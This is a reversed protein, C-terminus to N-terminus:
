KFDEATHKKTKKKRIVNPNGGERAVAASAESGEAKVPSVTSKKAEAKAVRARMARYEKADKGFTTRMWYWLPGTLFVSSCAGAVIGVMMPLTFEKISSVGLVYLMLISAFTTLNTFISRTLTQNIAGDVLVELDGNKPMEPLKERIRDFIVITSNISYGLITLMVAIFSNGASIRLIAYSMLTIAVDHCLALVASLAFRLDRFRIFIYLLMLAVAIVVALVANNRMEKGVTASISEATIDKSAVGFKSELDSALKERETLDLTRTKIIVQNSGVVKTMSVDADGTVKEVVPKVQEDLEDLTYDKDFEVTTSTGGLFDLSYNLAHKGNAKNYVMCGIGVALVCVAVVIFKMRNKVFHIHTPKKKRAWVKPNNVGVACFAKALFRSIVLATFMSLVVSLALTMAFGKITGSGLVGLVAAAILTTINGDLIASLAKHWGAAIAGKVTAGATIEEQIRSYIIVNADVAMGIGLIIGAIGPLTLTLDFANLMVLMLATYLVLAISAIVGPFLYVSIMIAMVIALGIAGGILSTKIAEQGLSAGVVNSRIENLTLSLGGIRIYSALQKAEDISSMGEIVAQGDTIAANVTPVSIFSGDYYIGISWGNKYAETTADAFKTTGSKTFTLSVVYQNSGTASNQEVEGQADKVDTGECVISGDAELSDITKGDALKYSGTSSDYSYNENGDSDYQSIFYLSGPTGLDELIEDANTVGPIEVTIRNTGEKYVNAETSYQDVRQQLKTVTDDMDSTSPNDEDAEYTISVGGALDLGLKINKMAGTGTPGWGVLATFVMFVTLAIMLIITIIGNRKKM